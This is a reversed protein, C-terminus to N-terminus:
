FNFPNDVQWMVLLQREEEEERWDRRQGHARGARQPVGCEPGPVLHDSDAPALYPGSKVWYESQTNEDAGVVEVWLDNEGYELSDWMVAWTDVNYGEFHKFYGITCNRNCTIKM